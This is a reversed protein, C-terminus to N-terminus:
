PLRRDLTGVLVPARRRVLFLPDFAVAREVSVQEDQAALPLVPSGRFLLLDTCGAEQFGNRVKQWNGSDDSVLHVRPRPTLQAFVGDLNGNDTGPKWDGRCIVKKEDLGLSWFKSDVWSVANRAHRPDYFSGRELALNAGNAHWLALAGETVMLVSFAGFGMILRRGHGRRIWQEAVVGLSLAGAGWVWIAYRPWWRMPQLAFCVATLAIAIVPARLEPTRRRAFQVVVAVIAPLAVLVWAIGLGAMRDDFDRAPGNLEFWTSLIRVGESASALRLPTNHLTDLIQDASGVGPLVTHGLLRLEVPWFPNKTHLVNRLAWFAGPAAFPIALAMRAGRRKAVAFVLSAAAVVAFFPLGTGKLSLVNAAAIGTIAVLGTDLTEMSLCLAVLCLLSIVAGAFAADVYGSPANLLVMPVLVFTAGAARAFPRRIGCEECLLWIAAAGAAVHVFSTAGVFRMSGTLAALVASVAEQGMPYGNRVPDDTPVWAIRGADLWSAITPLRYAIADYAVVPFLISALFATFFAVCAAVTLLNSLIKLPRYMGEWKMGAPGGGGHDEGPTFGLVGLATESREVRAGNMPPEVGGGPAASVRVGGGAARKMGVYPIACTLAMGAILVLAASLRGSLPHAGLASMAVVIAHVAWPFALLALLSSRLGSGAAAVAFSRTQPIRSSQM